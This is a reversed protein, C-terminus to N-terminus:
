SPAAGARSATAGARARDLDGVADELGVLVDAHADRVRVAGRGSDARRRPRRPRRRASGGSSPARRGRRGRRGLWGSRVILEIKGSRQSFYPRLVRSRARTWSAGAFRWQHESSASSPAARSARGLVLGAHVHVEDLGGVLPLVRAPAGSPRCAAGRGARGQQTGRRVSPCPTHSVSSSMSRTACVACWSRGCDGARVEAQAAADGREVVAAARAHLDRDAEVLGADVVVAVHELLHAEHQAQVAHGAHVVDHRRAGCTNRMAVSCPAAVVGKPSRRPVSAGPLAASTTSSDHRAMACGYRSGSVGTTSATTCRARAAARSMPPRRPRAGRPVSARTSLAATSSSSAADSRRRERGLLLM